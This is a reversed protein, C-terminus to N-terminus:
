VEEVSADKKNEKERLLTQKLRGIVTDYASGLLIRAENLFFHSPIDSRKLNM